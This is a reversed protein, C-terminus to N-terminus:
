TCLVVFTAIPYERDDVTVARAPISTRCIGHFGDCGGIFDCALEEMRGDQHFRIKPARSGFDHVSVDAVEFLIQGSDALRRAILDKLVEQQGYITVGKGVLQRFDIYHLSGAFAFYVGNHFMGERLMREGAGTEVLLDSAWQEILGARIRTEIHERSRNELVISDIGELHLLHSLMLGAPGAGVIAVQTRM